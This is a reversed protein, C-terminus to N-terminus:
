IYFSEIFAGVALLVVALIVLKGVDEMMEIFERKRYMRHELAVSMIGGALSAVFFAPIEFSGHPLIKLLGKVCGLSFAAPFAVAGLNSFFPILARVEAELFIGLLSANWVLLFVAGISYLFSFILMLSLVGLN